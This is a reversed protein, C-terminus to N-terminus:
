PSRTAVFTGDTDGGCDGTESYHLTGAYAGTQADFTATAGFDALCGFCEGAEFDWSDDFWAITLECGDESIQAQEIGLSTIVLRDQPDRAVEFSTPVFYPDFDTPHAEITWSGIPDCAPADTFPASTALASEGPPADGCPDESGGAGGAGGVGGAGDPIGGSGGEGAGGGGNGGPGGGGGDGCAVLWACVM